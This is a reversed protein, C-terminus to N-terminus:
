PWVGIPPPATPPTPYPPHTALAAAHGYTPIWVSLPSAVTGEGVLGQYTIVSGPPVVPAPMPYWTGDPLKTWVDGPDGEALGELHAVDSSLVYPDDVTGSGTLTHDVTFTDSVDLLPGINAQGRIVLPDDLTGSGSVEMDLTPTDGAMVVGEASPHAHIIYPDNSNGTGTISVNEGGVLKCTCEVNSCRCRAM